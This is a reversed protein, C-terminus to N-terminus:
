NGWMLEFSVIDGLVTTWHNSLLCSVSVHEVLDTKERSLAISHSIARVIPILGLRGCSHCWGWNWKHLLLLCNEWGQSLRAGAQQASSLCCMLICPLLMGWAGSYANCQGQAPCLVCLSLLQERCHSREFPYGESGLVKEFLDLRSLM